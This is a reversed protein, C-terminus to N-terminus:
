SGTRASRGRPLVRRMIDTSTVVGVFADGDMVAALQEQNRRIRTLAELVPTDAQLALAPRALDGVLTGNDKLLTDRVHVVGPPGGDARRVLIRKHSSEAAAAQIEAISATEAVATVAADSGVLDRLAVDALDLVESIQTHVGAELVGQSGSHEVLQRISEADYGGAAARDVPEVGSASVLKNAVANVFVLLPRVVTIFARSPLGIAKAATEPVAIAWSKPAMEGVVLHLFTVALLSILFSATGAVGGPLGITQLLPALATDVAPKTIAGLAFTCLTIGLQAGALMITLEHMGRLAARAPASDAAETELRHRRAGLLAFEIIVFFASAALLAVTAAIAVLASTSM